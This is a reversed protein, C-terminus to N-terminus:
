LSTPGALLLTCHSPSKVSTGPITFCMLLSSGSPFNPAVTAERVSIDVEMIGVDGSGPFAPPRPRPLATSVRGHLLDHALRLARAVGLDREQDGQPRGHLLLCAPSENPGASPARTGAVSPFPQNILRLDSHLRVAAPLGM